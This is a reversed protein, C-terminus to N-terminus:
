EDALKKWIVFDPSQESLARLLIAIESNVDEIQIFITDISRTLAMLIWRSVERNVWTDKDLESIPMKDFQSVFQSKKFSIFGDFDFCFTTWGEMGRSSDYQIFRFEDPSKPPDRRTSDEYGSWITLGLAAEFEALYSPNRFKDALKPSILALLDIPKNHLSFAHELESKVYVLSNLIPGVCVIVKGGKIQPNIKISWDIYHLNKSLTNAFVALNSKMRLSQDLSFVIKEFEKLGLTWSTKAGRVLQDMGDSIVLNKSGFISKLSLVEEPRWDQAEDVLVCDFALQEPNRKIVDAIEDANFILKNFSESLELISNDYGELFDEDDKLLFFSKLVKYFFSYTSEVVIGGDDLSSPLGLLSLVRRLDSVLARNYTLILSRSSKNVYLYNAIQLLAITKGTGARGKLIMLRKGLENAWAANFGHKTAISDIKRRDLDTPIYSKFLRSQFIKESFERPGLSVVPNGNKRIWPKAIEAIVTFFDRPSITSSVFNNPRKPLEFEELNSFFILNSVYPMQNFEDFIYQKLSHAQTLNQDSASHWGESNKRSYKVSATGGEFKVGSGTHSKVEVCLLFSEIFIQTKEYVDDPQCKVSRVPNFKRPKSFFCSVVVDIDQTQYGFLKAGSLIKVYDDSSAKLDPWISLFLEEIKEAVASESSTSFGLVEVM